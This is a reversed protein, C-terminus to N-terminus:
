GAAQPAAVSGSMYWGFLIGCFGGLVAVAAAIWSGIEEM